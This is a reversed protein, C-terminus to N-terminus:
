RYHLGTEFLSVAQRIENLGTEEPDFIIHLIAEETIFAAGYVGTVCLAALEISCKDQEGAQGIKLFGYESRRFISEM